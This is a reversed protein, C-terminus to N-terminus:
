FTVNIHSVLSEFGKAVEEGEGAEVFHWFWRFLPSFVRRYTGRDCSVRVTEKSNIVVVIPSSSFLIDGFCIRATSTEDREM